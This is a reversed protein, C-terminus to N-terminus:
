VYHGLAMLAATVVLLTAVIPGARFATTRRAGAEALLAAREPGDAMANAKATLAGAKLVNRRMAVLGIALAVIALAGGTGFVIAGPTGSLSPDFGGTFRWYLWLGSLVNALAVAPVINLYHRRMIGAMVKAGDPGAEVVAPMLFFAALVIAGTWVAGFVVHVIRMPLYFETM